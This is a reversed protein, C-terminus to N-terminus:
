SSKKSEQEQQLRLAAQQLYFGETSLPYVGLPVAVEQGIARGSLHDFGACAAAIVMSSSALGSLSPRLSANSAAAAFANIAGLAQREPWDHDLLDGSAMTAGTAAVAQFDKHDLSLRIGINRCARRIVAIKPALTPWSGLYADTIELVLLHREQDSLLSLQDLIFRLGSEEDIFRRGIPAVTIAKKEGRSQQIHSVLKRIVASNITWQLKPDDYTASFESLGIPEGEVKLTIKMRYTTVAQRRVDWIPEYLLQLEEIQPLDAAPRAAGGPAAESGAQGGTTQADTPRTIQIARPPSSKTLLAGLQTSLATAPAQSGATAPTQWDPAQRAVSGFDPVPRHSRPAATTVRYEGKASGAIPHVPYGGVAPAEGSSETATAAEAPMGTPTAGAQAGGALASFDLQPRSSGQADAVLRGQSMGGGTIPVIKYKDTWPTFAPNALLKEELDPQLEAPQGLLAAEHLAAVPDSANQVADRTVRTVSANLRIAAFAPDRGFLKQRIQAAAVYMLASAKQETLNPFIVLYEFEDIQTFIDSSTLMRRLTAEVLLHVQHEVKPWRDGLDARVSDLNLLQIQGAAFQDLSQGKPLMGLVANAAAPTLPAAGADAVSEAETKDSVSRAPEVGDQSDQILSSIKDWLKM